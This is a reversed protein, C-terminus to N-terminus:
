KILGMERYFKEAGPHLPVGGTFAMGKPDLTKLFAHANNLYKLQNYLAKAIAYADNDSMFSNTTLVGGTAFTKVDNKMFSYSAAPIIFEITNLDKGMKTIVEDNASILKIPSNLSAQQVHSTGPSLPAIVIDLRKDAMMDFSNNFPLYYM